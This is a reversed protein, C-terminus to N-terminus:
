SGRAIKTFVRDPEVKSRIDEVVVTQGGFLAHPDDFLAVTDDFLTGDPTFPQTTLPQEKITSVPIDTSM